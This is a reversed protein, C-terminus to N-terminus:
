QGHMLMVTVPKRADKMQALFGMNQADRWVFHHM